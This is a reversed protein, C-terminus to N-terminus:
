PFFGSLGFFIWNFISKQIINNWKKAQLYNQLREDTLTYKASQATHCIFFFRICEEIKKQHM